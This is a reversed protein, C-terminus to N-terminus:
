NKGGPPLIDTLVVTLHSTRKLISSARGRSIAKWRKLSPGSDVKISKIYLTKIAPNKKMANIKASKLTKYIEPTGGKVTFYMLDMAKDVDLNKLLRVVPRIKRPSIRIFRTSVTYDM